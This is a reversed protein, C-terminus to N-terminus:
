STEVEAPWGEGLPQDVEAQPSVENAPVACRKLTV